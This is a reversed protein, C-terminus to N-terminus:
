EVIPLSYKLLEIFWFLEDKVNRGNRQKYRNSNVWENIVPIQLLDKFAFKGNSTYIIMEVQYEAPGFLFEVICDGKKYKAFYAFGKEIFSDREFQM